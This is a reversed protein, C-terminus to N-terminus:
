KKSTKTLGLTQDFPQLNVANPFMEKFYDHIEVEYDKWTMKDSNESQTETTM